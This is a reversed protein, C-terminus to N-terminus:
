KTGGDKYYIDYVMHDDDNAEKTDITSDTTPISTVTGPYYRSRGGYKAKVRTGM